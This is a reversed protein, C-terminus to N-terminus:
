KIVLRLRQQGAVVSSTTPSVGQAIPGEDGSRGLVMVVQDNRVQSDVYEKIGAVSNWSGGGFHSNGGRVFLPMAAGRLGKPVSVSVKRRVTGKSSQLVARLTFKTGAKATLRGSVPVWKGKVRREVAAVRYQTDDTNLASDATVSAVKVGRLQTLMWVLDPVEGVGESALDWRALYRDTHELTFPAGKADTGTVTWSMLSSGKAYGDVARDNTTGLHYWTVEGAYDPVTVTTTGSHSRSGFRSESSVVTGGPVAGFRGSIAALRDNDITGVPAGLNAYKSATGAPDEQVYVVSAPHMAATTQGLYALPHGFGVVEGVCVSTATGVGSYTIMGHSVSAGLNGGAVITDPGAVGMGAGAARPSRLWDRDAVKKVRAPDIGTVTMPVSLRRLGREATATSVGSAKAVAKAEAGDLPVRQPLTRPALHDDMNEFPTIGAIPSPGWAMGYSVAGILRGDAAYVPSGSMGAWISGVRDIDPSTLEAVVMDIGSAIGDELVGLVEGTFAAPTTGKAVTLGNVEDGPAVDAVPFPVACDEAPAASAAVHTAATLVGMTSVVLGAGAVVALSRRRRNLENM